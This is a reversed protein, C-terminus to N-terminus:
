PIFVLPSAEYRHRIDATAAGFASFVAAYPPIVVKPFGLNATYGACHTPGAGGFSFMIYQAPDIGKTAMATRLTAQMMGDVIQCIAEAAKLVDMKLPDAIKEKIAQVAKDQDLKIRGGLFHHADIRNMVVDADTVTPDEGGLGYCVPGPFAGASEPGVHLVGTIEDVWAKTGGGAGITIIERMPNAIEYRSVIPERLFEEGGETSVTVDFSTGGVDSGMANNQGYLTKLFEVGILGGVPGSHLTTAPKVAESRAVGGIAQMVLLPHHYGYKRLRGEIASLLDKLPKGVLLDIITSNFRPYERIIPMVESSISVMLQPSIEKIIEKIRVEHSSNLFSWLLGVAIGEVGEAILELVGKRVEEEDLPIIEEGQSDIRGTVGKILRRPVLMKPKDAVIMHMATEKPLGADRRRMFHIRDEVGKTTIFGIKPGGAGTVMINTGITTGYGIEKTQSLIEELSKGMKSAAQQICAFFCEELKEPTTPSKGTIYEGNASVVVADSFTGGTDIYILYEEKEM